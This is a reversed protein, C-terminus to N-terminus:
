AGATSAEKERQRKVIYYTILSKPDDQVEKMVAWFRADGVRAHLAVCLQVADMRVGSESSELCRTCLGAMNALEDDTPVYEEKADVMEKLVHLGMSLSRGGAPEGVETGAMRQTLVTAIEQADGLRVLEDALLELGSVIHTRADYAARAAMLSELAKSIHPQFHDRHKKLLLKITALIQAKVDQLKDAAVSPQPDELFEFLGVLLADFKDDALPAKNDRIIGQLKRFGHVDLSKAKIKNLASDLLRMQQREKESLMEDKPPPADGDPRPMLHAADENVPRDVLVETSIARPTSPDVAAAAAAEDTVPDEYVKMAKSPTAVAPEEPQDLQMDVVPSALLAAPTPLDMTDMINPMGQGTLDSQSAVLPPGPSLRMSRMPSPRSPSGAPSSKPGPLKTPTPLSSESSTPKHGPRTKVLTRKPSGVMTRPTAPKRVQPPSSLLSHEGSRSDYPGATKPRPPIDPRKRAGPRVPAGSLGGAKPRAITSPATSAQSAGSVTRTPRPPSIEMASGPRPRSPEMASGPRAAMAAKRAALMTERISPKSTGMTSKSFGMGPRVAVPEPRKSANPNHPDKQLLKQATSDLNDM